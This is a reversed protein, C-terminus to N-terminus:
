GQNVEILKSLGLINVTYENLYQKRAGRPYRHLVDKLAVIPLAKLPYPIRYKTFIYIFHIFIDGVEMAATLKSFVAM